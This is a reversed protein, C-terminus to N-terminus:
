VDISAWSLSRFSCVLFYKVSREEVGWGSPLSSRFLPVYEGLLYAVIGGRAAVLIRYGRVKCQLNKKPPPYHSIRNVDKYKIKKMYFTYLKDKTIGKQCFFFFHVSKSFVKFEIEDSLERYKVKVYMLNKVEVIEVSRM